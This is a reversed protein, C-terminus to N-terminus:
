QEGMMEIDIKKGDEFLDVETSATRRMGGHMGSEWAKTGPVNIQLRKTGKIASFSKGARIGNLLRYVTDTSDNTFTDVLDSAGIAVLNKDNTASALACAPRMGHCSTDVFFLQKGGADTRAKMWEGVSKFELGAKPPGQV